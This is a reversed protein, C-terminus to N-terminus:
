CTEMLPYQETLTQQSAISPTHKKTNSNVDASFPCIKQPDEKNLLGNSPRKADISRVSTCNSRVSRMSGWDYSKFKLFFCSCLLKLIMRRFSTHLRSYIIPNVCSNLMKLMELCTFLHLLGETMQVADSLYILFFITVPLICVYFIIIIVVFLKTARTNRKLRIKRERESAHFLRNRATKRLELIILAYLVTIVVIPIIVQAVVTVLTHVLYEGYEAFNSCIYYNEGDYPAHLNVRLFYFFGLILSLIWTMSISTALKWTPPYERLPWKVITYRDISILVLTFASVSVSALTVFSILKCGAHGIPHFSYNLRETLHRTPVVLTGILDAVALNIMFIECIKLRKWRMGFVVLVLSNGIIGVFLICICVLITFMNILTMGEDYVDDTYQNDDDFYVEAIGNMYNSAFPSITSNFTFM